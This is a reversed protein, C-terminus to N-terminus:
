AGAALMARLERAARPPDDAALIAAGVAVRGVQALETVNTRDIGGIAFLPTAAATNAVWAVEAGHGRDYGKTSTAHIPGFGVYDVPEDSARVVEDMTHTSLGVLPEPGLVSRADAVPCDDRGLHVGALGESWLARAVDVRDNVLVPMGTDEALEVLALARRCWDLAERAHTAGTHGGVPKPRVQVVDVFPLVSALVALPDREGTLAPTFVLMVRARAIRDRLTSPALARSTSHPTLSAGELDGLARGPIFTVNRRPM